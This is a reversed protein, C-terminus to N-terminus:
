VPTEGKLLLRYLYRREKMDLRPQGPGAASMGDCSAIHTRSTGSATMLRGKNPSSIFFYSHDYGEHMRLTLPAGAM